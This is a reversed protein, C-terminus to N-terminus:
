PSFYISGSREDVVLSSCSPFLPSELIPKGPDGQPDPKFELIRIGKLESKRTTENTVFEGHAVYLNNSTAAIQSAGNMGNSVPHIEPYRCPKGAPQWSKDLSWSFLINEAAFYLTRGVRFLQLTALSNSARFTRDGALPKEMEGTAGVDLVRIASPYGGVILADWADSPVM